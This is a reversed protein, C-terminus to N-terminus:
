LPKTTQTWQANVQNNENRRSAARPVARQGFSSRGMRWVAELEAIEKCLLRLEEGTRGTHKTWARKLRENNTRM